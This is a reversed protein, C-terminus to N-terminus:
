ETAPSANHGCCDPRGCSVAKCGFLDAERECRRSLFGFAVFIYGATIVLLPIAQWDGLKQFLAEFWSGEGAIHELASALGVLMLLSLGLFSIYLLLHFHRVHGIEHGLVAEI